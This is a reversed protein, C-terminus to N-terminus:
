TTDNYLSFLNHFQNVGNIEIVRRNNKFQGRELARPFLVVSANSMSLTAEVSKISDEFHVECGIMAITKGKFEDGSEKQDERIYINEEEIWPYHEDLWQFTNDKLTSPRSTVVTQEIGRDHALKSYYRIEPIPRSQILVDPHVWLVEELALAMKYDVVQDEVAWASLAEWRDLKREFYNTHLILDFMKKVPEESLALVQDLDWNIKQVQFNLIRHLIQIQEASLNETSKEFEPLRMLTLSEIVVKFKRGVM